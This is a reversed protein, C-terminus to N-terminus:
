TESVSTPDYKIGMRDLPNERGTKQIDARQAMEYRVQTDSGGSTDIVQRATFVQGMFFQDHGRGANAIDARQVSFSQQADSSMYKKEEDKQGSFSEYKIAQDREAEFPVSNARTPTGPDIAIQGLSPSGGGHSMFLSFSELDIEELKEELDESILNAESEDKREKFEVKIDEDPIEEDKEKNKKEVEKKVM